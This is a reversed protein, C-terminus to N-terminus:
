QNNHKKQMSSILATIATSGAQVLDFSRDGRLWENLLGVLLSLLIQAATESQWADTLEGRREALRLLGTFLSLINARNTKLRDILPAMDGVYECRHQIITFIHQQRQNAAFLELAKIMSQELIHLPNPHNCAAAQLMIEEHPFRTRDIIAQFLDIKDRFHFYIAGRTVGAHSAIEKLTSQNVGRQLFVHEAASLITERTGAAEAKTRRM